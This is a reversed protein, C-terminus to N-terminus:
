ARGGAFSNERPPTPSAFGKFILWLPFVLAEFLGGPVYFLRGSGGKTDIVGFLSLVVSAVVVLYGALGLVSIGRPVLRQRYLLSALILGGLGCALIGMQLALDKGALAALAVAEISARDSAPAGTWAEGLAILSLGAVVGVVLIASEIVRVGVYGLALPSSYRRLITHLTVAIGVVAFCNVLELVAGTVTWVHDASISALPADLAAAFGSTYVM